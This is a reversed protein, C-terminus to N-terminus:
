KKQFRSEIKGLLDRHEAIRKSTKATNIVQKDDIGAAKLSTEVEDTKQKITASLEPNVKIEQGDSGKISVAHNIFQREGKQVPSAWASIKVHEGPQCNDLKAIVRQAVDSKLDLSLVLKDQEGQIDVRVKPHKNGAGDINETYKVDLIAGEVAVPAIGANKLESRIAATAGNPDAASFGKKWVDDGVRAKAKAVAETLQDNHAHFNGDLTSYTVLKTM